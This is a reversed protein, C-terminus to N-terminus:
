ATTFPPSLFSVIFPTKGKMTELICYLIFLDYVSITIKIIQLCLKQRPVGGKQLANPSLMNTGM